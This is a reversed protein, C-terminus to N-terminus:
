STNSFEAQSSSTEFNEEDVRRHTQNPKTRSAAEDTAVHWSWGPGLRQSFCSELLLSFNDSLTECLGSTVEDTLPGAFILPRCTARASSPLQAPSLQEMESGRCMEHTVTGRVSSTCLKTYMQRHSEWDLSSVYKSDATFFPLVGGM